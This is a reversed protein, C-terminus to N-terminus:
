ITEYLERALEFGEKFGRRYREDSVLELCKIREDLKNLFVSLIYEIKNEQENNM